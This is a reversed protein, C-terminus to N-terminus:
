KLEQYIHVSDNSASRTYRITPEQYNSNVISRNKKMLKFDIDLLDAIAFFLDETNTKKDVNAMIARWKKPHKQQYTDSCWIILPIEVEPRHPLPYGHGTFDNNINDALYEGHDSTYVMCAAQKQKDLQEIVSDLIFDTYLISNAYENIKQQTYVSHKEFGAAIGTFKRFAKPYRKYYALHSGYLHLVIFKKDHQQAISSSLYPLLKGDYTRLISNGTNIFFSQDAEIGTSGTTAENKGFRAQASFWYTQYNAANALSIISKTTYFLTRDQATSMYLITSLSLVTANAPSIADKFIALSKRKSLKPNTERTYGYLSHYDRRATEGLVLVINTKEATNDSNAKIQFHFNERQKVLTQTDAINTAYIYGSTVMGLPFSTRSAGKGITDAIPLAILLLTFLRKYQKSRKDQKGFVFLFIWSALYLFFVLYIIPPAEKAFESMERADSQFIAAYMGPTTHVNFQILYNMDMFSLMMLPTFILLLLRKSVNFLRMLGIFLLIPILIAALKTSSLDFWLAVINPLSLIVLFVLMWVAKILKKNNM